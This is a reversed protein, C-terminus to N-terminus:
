RGLAEFLSGLGVGEVGSRVRLTCFFDMAMMQMSHIPVAIWFSRCRWVVAGLVLGGLISLYAEAMPKQAHLAAFPLMQVFIAWPGLTHQTGFLVFGRWLYEWGVWYFLFLLEYVLFLQWDDSVDHFLPYKRQFSEQASLVWCGAAVVPVYLGALTLALKWDGLGLGIERLPRRFLVALVVVPVVLGTVGQGGFLYVYSWLGRGDVGLSGAVHEQFFARGGLTYKWMGLVAALTLVVATQRDLAVLGRWLAKFEARLSRVM